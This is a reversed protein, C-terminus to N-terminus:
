QRDGHPDPLVVVVGVAAVVREAIRERRVIAQPPVGRLELRGRGLGSGWGAGSAEADAAQEGRQEGAM